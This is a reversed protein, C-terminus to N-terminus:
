KTGGKPNWFRHNQAGSYAAKFRPSDFTYAKPRNGCGCAIRDGLGSYEIGVRHCKPCECWWYPFDEGGNPFVCLSHDEPEGLGPLEPQSCFFVLNKGTFTALRHAKEKEENTAAAPKIEVFVGVKPLWFDPTYFVGDLNYAEPEYNYKVGVTDMFLAWRAELRSRFLIGNHQTEIVKM